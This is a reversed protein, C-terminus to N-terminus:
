RLLVTTTHIVGDREVDIVFRSDTMTADYARTLGDLGALGLGNVRLFLDGSEFGLLHWFGDPTVDNIEFYGRENASFRASDNLVISWDERLAVELEQSVSYVGPSIEDVESAPWGSPWEEYGADDNNDCELQEFAYGYMNFCDLEALTYSSHCYRVDGSPTACNYAELGDNKCEGCIGEPDACGTASCLPATIAGLVFGAGLLTTRVLRPM